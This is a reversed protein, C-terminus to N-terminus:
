NFGSPSNEMAGGERGSNSDEQKQNGKGKGKAVLIVTQKTFGAQGRGKQNAVSICVLWRSTLWNLGDKFKSITAWPTKWVQRM